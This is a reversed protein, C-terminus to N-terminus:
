RASRSGSYKVPAGVKLGNLNGEFMCVFEYQKQFLKGSGVVMIATILVALAGVV